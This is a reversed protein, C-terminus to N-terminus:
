KFVKHIEVLDDNFSFNSQRGEVDGWQKKAREEFDKKFVSNRQVQVRTPRTSGVSANVKLAHMPPANPAGREASLQMMKSPSHVM